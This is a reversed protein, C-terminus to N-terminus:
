RKLKFNQMCFPSFDLCGSNINDIILLCVSSLIHTLTSHSFQISWLTTTRHLQQLLYWICSEWSYCVLQNQLELHPGVSKCLKSFGFYTCGLFFLCNFKNFLSPCQSSVITQKIFIILATFSKNIPFGCFYNRNKFHFFYTVVISFLNKLHLGYLANFAIVSTHISFVM